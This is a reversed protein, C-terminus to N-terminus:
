HGLTYRTSRIVGKHDLTVHHRWVRNAFASAPPQNHQERAPTANSTALMAM